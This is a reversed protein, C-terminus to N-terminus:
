LKSVTNKRYEKVLKENLAFLLKGLKENLLDNRYLSAVNCDEFYKGGYKIFEDDNMAALRISTAAGQSLSKTGIDPIYKNWLNLFLNHKQLGTKIAGPHLSISYVGKSSYRRNYEASYIINCAKTLGYQRMPSYLSKDKLKNDNILWESINRPAVAYGVSSVNLVRSICTGKGYTSSEILLPTLTETLLYHGLVNTGYQREIKTDTTIGFADFGMVGANNILINLKKYKANFSKVFSDVSKLSSLDLQMVDLNAEPLKIIRDENTELLIERKVKNAKKINRCAMIVTAENEFLVKATSIGIGSSSGTVIAVKGRFQNGKAAEEATTRRNFERFDMQKYIVPGLAVASLIGLSAITKKGFAM